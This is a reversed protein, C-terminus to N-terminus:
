RGEIMRPWFALVVLRAGNRRNENEVRVADAQRQWSARLRQNAAINEALPRPTRAYVLGAVGAIGAGGAIVFRAASAEANGAVIAPLAISVGATALGVLLARAGNRGTTREPRLRAQDLPAPDPLTDLRETRVELPLEVSRAIRNGDGRSAIRLIYSGSDAPVGTSDRGDWLVQLSDGIAGAYLSRVLRGGGSDRAIVATIDHISSAYLRVIVRDGPGPLETRTTVDVAVARTGLRVESFLTTVEPPFVLLDPRYRADSIILRRFAAVSSDRRERFLETAGLYMLARSRDAAELPTRTTPALSRRLWSAASDFELEHTARVGRALLEAATQAKLPTAFRTVCCCVLLLGRFLLRRSTM